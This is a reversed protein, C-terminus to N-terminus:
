QTNRRTTPGLVQTVVARLSAPQVPKALFTTVQLAALTQELDPPAESSLLVVPTAAVSPDARVARILDLGSWGPMQWDTLVLAPHLTRILDYGAQGDAAEVVAHDWPRLAVALVRRSLPDDDVIIVPRMLREKGPWAGSV